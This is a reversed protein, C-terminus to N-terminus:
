IYTYISFMFLAPIKLKTFNRIVAKRHYSAQHLVDMPLDLLILCAIEYHTHAIDLYYFRRGVASHGLRISVTYSSLILALM